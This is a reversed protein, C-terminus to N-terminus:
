LTDCSKRDGNEVALLATEDWGSGFNQRFM